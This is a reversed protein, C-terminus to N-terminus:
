EIALDFPMRAFISAEGLDDLQEQFKPIAEESGLFAKSISRFITNGPWLFLPRKQPYVEIRYEELGTREALYELSQRLGGLEDALGNAM